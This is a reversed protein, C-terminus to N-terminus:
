WIPLEPTTPRPRLSVPPFDYRKGSFAFTEREWLGRIVELGEELRSPRQNHPIGFAAYEDVYYG